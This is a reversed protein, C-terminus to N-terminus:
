DSQDQGDVGEGGCGSWEYENAASGVWWGRLNGWGFFAEARSVDTVLERGREVSTDDQASRATRLRLVGFGGVQGWSSSGNQWCSRTGRGRCPKLTAPRPGRRAGKSAPTSRPTDRGVRGGEDLGGRVEFRSGRVEFGSGQVRFGSGQVRFRSGGFDNDVGWVGGFDGLGWLGFAFFSLFLQCVLYEGRRVILDAYFSAAPGAVRANECYTDALCSFSAHNKEWLFWVARDRGGALSQSSRGVRRAKAKLRGSRLISGGKVGAM